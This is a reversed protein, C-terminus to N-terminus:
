HCRSDVAPLTLHLAAAGGGAPSIFVQVDKALGLIRADPLFEASVLQHGPISSHVSQVLDIDPDIDL